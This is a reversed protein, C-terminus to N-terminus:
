PQEPSTESDIEQFGEEWGTESRMYLCQGPMAHLAAVHSPSSRNDICDIIFQEVLAGSALDYVSLRASRLHASQIAPVRIRFSQVMMPTPMDSFLVM